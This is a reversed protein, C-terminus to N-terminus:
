RVTYQYCDSKLAVTMTPADIIQFHIDFKSGTALSAVSRWLQETGKGVGDTIISKPQLGKGLTLWATGTCNGDITTDVARQLIYERNAMMNRLEIDLTIMKSTDSNQRFKLFGSGSGSEGKLAVDLNFKPDLPAPDTNSKQCSLITIMIMIIIFPAMIFRCILKKM